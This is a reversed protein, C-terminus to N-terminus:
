SKFFKSNEVDVISFALEANKFETMFEISKRKYTEPDNETIIHYTSITKGKDYEIDASLYYTKNIKSSYITINNTKEEDKLFAIEREFM